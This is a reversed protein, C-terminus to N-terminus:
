SIEPADHEAEVLLYSIEMSIQEFKNRQVVDTSENMGDQAMKKIAKLKGLCDNM